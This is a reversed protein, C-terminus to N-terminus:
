WFFHPRRRRWPDAWLRQGNCEEVVASQSRRHLRGMDRPRARGMWRWRGLWLAGSVVVLLVDASSDSTNCACGLTKNRPRPGSDSSTTPMHGARSTECDPWPASVGAWLGGADCLRGASVTPAGDPVGPNGREPSVGSDGRLSFAGRPSARTPHGGDWEGVGTVLGSGVAKTQARGNSDGSSPGDAVTRGLLARLWGPTLVGAAGAGASKGCGVEDAKSRVSQMLGPSASDLADRVVLARSSVHQCFSHIRTEFALYRDELEVAREPAGHEVYWRQMVKVNDEFGLNVKLLKERLAYSEERKGSFALERAQIDLDIGVCNERYYEWVFRLAPYDVWRSKVLRHAETCQSTHPGRKEDFGRARTWLVVVAAAEDMRGALELGHLYVGIAHNRDEDYSALQELVYPKAEDLRGRAVLDQIITQSARVDNRDLALLRKAALFLVDSRLHDLGLVRNLTEASTPARNIAVRAHESADTCHPGLDAWIRASRYAAECVEAVALHAEGCGDDVRLALHLSAIATVAGASFESDAEAWVEHLRSAGDRYSAEATPGTCATGPARLSKRASVRHTEAPLADEAAPSLLAFVLGIGGIFTM